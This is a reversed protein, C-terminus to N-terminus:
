ASEDRARADGAGLLEDSGYRIRLLPRAKWGGAAQDLDREFDDVARAMEGLDEPSYNTNRRRLKAACYSIVTKSIQFLSSRL